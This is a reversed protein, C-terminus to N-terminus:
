TRAQFEFDGSNAVHFEGAETREAGITLRMAEWTRLHAERRGLGHYKFSLTRPLMIIPRAQVGRHGGESRGWAGESESYSRRPRKKAHM